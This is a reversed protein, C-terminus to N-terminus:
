EDREKLEVIPITPIAGLGGGRLELGLEDIDFRVPLDFECAVEIVAAAAPATGFLVEGTNFDVAVQGAPPMPRPSPPMGTDWGDPLLSRLVGNVWIQATGRVPRTIARDFPAPGDAEYRKFIPFSRTAGDGTGIQQRDMESDAWDRFRFGRARARRAYFFALVPRLGDLDDIAFGIDWRGRNLSWNQNRKERGSSLEKITTNFGPGGKAGREIYIPLRVDDFSNAM